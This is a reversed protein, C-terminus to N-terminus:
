TLKQEQNKLKSKGEIKSKGFFYMMGFIAAYAFINFWSHHDLGLPMPWGKNIAVLFLGIRIVNILWILILGGFLWGLKKKLSEVSALVFAIWFSMVGYGVCDYAIFVGRGNIIRVLFNPEERTAYGFMSAIVAAGKILTIKIGSVYDLWHDVFSSYLNGPAALGMVALTGFYCVAFILLFKIVFRTFIKDKLFNM